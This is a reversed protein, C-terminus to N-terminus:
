VEYDNMVGNIAASKMIEACEKVAKFTYNMQGADLFANLSLDIAKMREKFDNSM